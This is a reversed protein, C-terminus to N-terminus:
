FRRQPYALHGTHGTDDVQYVEGGAFTVFLTDLSSGGYTCNTPNDAPAPHTRVVRGSPEFEYLMPGPRSTSSGATAVVTGSSTLTM